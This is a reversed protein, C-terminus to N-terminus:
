DHTQEQKRRQVFLAIAVLTFLISVTFVRVTVWSVELSIFSVVPVGLLVFINMVILIGFMPNERSGLYTFFENIIHM